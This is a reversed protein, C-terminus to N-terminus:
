DTLVADSEGIFKPPKAGDRHWMYIKRGNQSATFVYETDRNQAVPEDAFAHTGIVPSLVSQKSGGVSGIHFLAVVFAVAVVRWFISDSM